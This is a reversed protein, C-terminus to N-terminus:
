SVIKKALGILDFIDINTNQDIDSNELACASFDSSVIGKALTILDFIDVESDLNSDGTLVDKKYINVEDLYGASAIYSTFKVNENLLEEKIDTQLFLENNRYVEAKNGMVKLTYRDAIDTRPNLVKTKCLSVGNQKLEIVTSSGYLV